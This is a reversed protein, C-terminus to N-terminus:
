VTQYSSGEVEKVRNKYKKLLRAKNWPPCYFILFYPIRLSPFTQKEKDCRYKMIIAQLQFPAEYAKEVDSVKLSMEKALSNILAKVERNM